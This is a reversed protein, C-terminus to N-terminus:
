LIFKKITVILDESNIPKVLVYDCGAKYCKEEDDPLALATQAIIPIDPNIEKIERTADYGDKEPMMIDMLILNVNNEKFMKIAEAGDQAWLLNVKTRELFAEIFFYNSETDEAVLITKTSWNNDATVSPKTITIKQENEVTITFTFLSGQNQASQVKIEGKLLEVLKKSLTLGLGSGRNKNTNINGSKGFKKFIFDQDERAIGIGTDRVFFEIINGAPLKYGFEIEGKETFKLANSLLHSFIQYIREPDSIIMYLSDDIGKSVKIKIHEKELIDQKQQLDNLLKDLISNLYCKERKLKVQNSELKAIEIINDMLNLIDNSSDQIFRVYELREEHTLDADSLLSTFGTIAHLPTRIEHPMNDLFASKLQEADEALHKARQLEADIEKEHSIDRLIVTQYRDGNIDFFRIFESVWYIKGTKSIIRKELFFSNLNNYKSENLLNEQLPIDDEYTLDKWSKSAIEEFSYGTKSSLYPSVYLTEQKSQNMIIIGIPFDGFFHNFDGCKFFHPLNSNISQVVVVVEDDSIPNSNLTVYKKVGNMPKLCATVEQSAAQLQEFKGGSDFLERLQDLSEPTLGILEVLKQNSTLENTRFNICFAPIPFNELFAKFGM